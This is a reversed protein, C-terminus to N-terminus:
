AAEEGVLWLDPWVEVPHLGLAIALRDGAVVTVSGRAVAHSWLDRLPGDGFVEGPGGRRAVLPVLPATPLCRHGRIPEDVCPDGKVRWREYHTTCWGRAVAPRDGCISCARRVGCRGWSPLSWGMREAWAPRETVYTHCARCCLVINAADTISGGRARSLLEHGDQWRGTCVGGLQIQCWPGRTVALDALVKRRRRNERARKASVARLRARRTLPGGGELSSRRSLAASRRM